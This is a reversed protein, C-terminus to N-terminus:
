LSVNLFDIKLIESVIICQPRYEMNEGVQFHQIFLTTIMSCSTSILPM